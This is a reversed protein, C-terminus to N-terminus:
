LSFISDQVENLWAATVKTGLEGNFANGEHFKSDPTDIPSMTSRM